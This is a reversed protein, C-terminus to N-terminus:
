VQLTGGSVADRRKKQAEGAAYARHIRIATDNGIRVIADIQGTDLNDPVFGAGIGQIKHPGAAGGSLVPSDEPEVAIMRLSPKRPKLARGVGTLTGGTGGGAMVADVRGASDRWIEEATTRSHVGQNAANNFQHPM